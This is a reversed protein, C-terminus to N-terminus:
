RLSPTLNLINLFIRNTASRRRDAERRCGSMQGSATRRSSKRAVRRREAQRARCRRAGIVITNQRTKKFFVLGCALAM